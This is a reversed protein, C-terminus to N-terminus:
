PSYSGCTAVSSSSASRWMSCRRAPAASGGRAGVMSVVVLLYPAAHGVLMGVVLRVGVLVLVVALGVRVRVGAVVVLVDLVLMLVLVAALRMRVRVHVLGAELVDVLVFV